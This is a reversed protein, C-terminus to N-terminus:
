YVNIICGTIRCFLQSSSLEACIKWNAHPCLIRLCGNYCEEPCDFDSSSQSSSWYLNFPVRTNNKNSIIIPHHNYVKTSTTPFSNWIIISYHHSTCRQQKCRSNHGMPAAAPTWWRKFSALCLIKDQHQKWYSTHFQCYQQKEYYLWIIITIHLSLCIFTTACRWSIKGDRDQDAFNFMEDIDEEMVPVPLNRMM